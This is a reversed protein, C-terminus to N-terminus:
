KEQPKLFYASVTLNIRSFRIDLKEIVILQPNQLLMSLFQYLRTPIIGANLQATVQWVEPYNPVDLPAQMELRPNDFQAFYIEEQLFSQFMAQALGKTEARWLKAELQQLLQHTQNARQPWQTQKAVTQLQHLRHLAEQHEQKIKGQYTNIFVLAYSLLLGIIGWLGLRLRINQRLELLLTNM